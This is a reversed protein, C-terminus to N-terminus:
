KIRGNLTLLRAVLNEGIMQYERSSLKSQDLDEDSYERWTYFNSFSWAVPNLSSDGVVDDFILKSKGNETTRLCAVVGNEARVADDVDAM